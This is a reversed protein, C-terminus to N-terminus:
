RAGRLLRGPVAGTHEGEAFTVEGGKVTAVYGDARQVFRSAGGPLDEVKTPRHLQLRGHDIVNLDGVFGPALVGRDGLGYLTATAQTLKHV